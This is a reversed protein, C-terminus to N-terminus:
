LAADGYVGPPRGFHLSSEDAVERLKACRYRLPQPWLYVRQHSSWAALGARHSAARSRHSLHLDFLGSGQGTQAFSISASGLILVMFVLTFNVM